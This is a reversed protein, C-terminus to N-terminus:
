AQLAQQLQRRLDAAPFTGGARAARGIDDTVRAIDTFGLLAAAGKLKHAADACRAPDGEALADRLAAITGSADTFFMAVLREVEGASLLDDIGQGAPARAPAHAHGLVAALQEVKLPKALVVDAGARLASARTEEMVDATLMVIPLNAHPVPLARIARATDVGDLVPMHVDLLVTDFANHRVLELAQRGDEALSVEHGLSRLLLGLYKRNVPHDDAVLIRKPPLAAAQAAQVSAGDGPAPCAPLLVALEFVSGTGATSQAAIDGRMMRALSRSIELGLGTGGFRRSQEADGVEFRQFLRAMTAADMGIGTDSVRFRLQKLAGVDRASVDLAVEGQPTFKIANGLLNFLIQKLRMADGHVWHPLGDALRMRLALGRAQAQAALQDRVERCLQPLDLPADHLSLKGAEVASVDLVDDLLALLHRASEHATAILDRQAPTTPTQQLLQLMGLVGQFPTRLEHSMNALFRSKARSAAEAAVNAERLEDALRELQRRAATQEKQHLWLVYGAMSLLLLHLVALGGIAMAQERVTDFQQEILEASQRSAALTYSQVDPMIREIHDAMAAADARTAVSAVAKDGLRMLVQLQRMLEAHEPIDRLMELGSSDQLLLIRSILIEYPLALAQGDVDDGPAALAARLDGRFRMLQREFGFVISVVSDKWGMKKADVAHAQRVQAVAVLGAALLTTLSLLVLIVLGAKRPM